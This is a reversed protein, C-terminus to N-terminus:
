GCVPASGRVSKAGKNNPWQLAAAATAPLDSSLPPFGFATAAHPICGFPPVVVRGAVGFSADM